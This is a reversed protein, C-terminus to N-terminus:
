EKTQNNDTRDDPMPSTSPITPMTKRKQFGPATV